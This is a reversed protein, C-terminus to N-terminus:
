QKLTLGKIYLKNRNNYDRQILITHVVGERLEAILRALLEADTEKRVKLKVDGGTHTM